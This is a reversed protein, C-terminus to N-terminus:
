FCNAPKFEFWCGVQPVLIFFNRFAPYYGLLCCSSCETTCCVRCVEELAVFKPGDPGCAARGARASKREIPCFYLRDATLALVGDLGQSLSAFSFDFGEMGFPNSKHLMRLASGFSFIFGVQVSAELHAEGGEEELIRNLEASPQTGPPLREM